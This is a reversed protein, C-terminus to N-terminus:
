RHRPLEPPRRHTHLPGTARALDPPSSAATSQPVSCSPPASMPLPRVITVSPRLGTRLLPKPPPLRRPPRRPPPPCCLSPPGATPNVRPAPTPMPDSEPRRGSRTGASRPGAVTARRQKPLPADVRSVRPGRSTAPSPILVLARPTRPGARLFTFHASGRLFLLM